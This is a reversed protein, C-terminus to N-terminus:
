KVNGRRCTSPRVSKQTPQAPAPQLYIFVYESNQMDEDSLPINPFSTFVPIPIDECYPVPRGASELDSFEWKSKKDRNFGKVNKFCFYCDDYHNVPERWVMPVGFQM